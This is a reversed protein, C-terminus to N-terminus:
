HLYSESGLEEGGVVCVGVGTSSLDQPLSMDEQIM